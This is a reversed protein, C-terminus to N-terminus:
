CNWANTFFSYGSTTPNTAPGGPYFLMAVVTLLVFLVCVIAVLRFIEQRWFVSHFSM